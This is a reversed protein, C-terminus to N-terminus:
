KAAARKIFFEKAVQPFLVYSLIDEEQRAYEKIEERAAELQPELKDAPRYTIVEEDGIIKKRIDDAIPVPPRGYLGRVYDRIEKSCIAYRAGSAVNLVAQTGVIQSMPTVLPPYGLDARVRPVEEFVEQLRDEMGQQKLQSRLNSLMGGPVQYKLIETQVQLPAAIDKYKDRVDSFYRNLTTLLDLDLGTDRETGRLAAVMPETAPQSSGLALASLATDVIDVGAEAAKLYAMSGMGSTYHTHLVLPLDIEAKLRKVLNYASYPDILGAMDKICLSHVGKAALEKAVGVFYDDNHVPSQTYCLTGQAHGGYKITSTICTEMNRVDNLADFIRIITIGNQISYKIFADVVDDPYHRYGLLNQGRLLMQLPTNRIRVKLRRLREWPCENLFRLASDFTAGGWVELSHYGVQDLGEAAEMMDNTNMRTALLSQHADRLITETIKLRNQTM